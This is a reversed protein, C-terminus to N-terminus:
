PAWRDLRTEKPPKDALRSEGGVTEPLPLFVVVIQVRCPPVIDGVLSTLRSLGGPSEMAVVCVTPCELFFLVWYQVPVNAQVPALERASCLNQSHPYVLRVNLFM